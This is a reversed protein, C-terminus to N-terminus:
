RPNIFLADWNLDLRIWSVTSHLYNKALKHVAKNVRLIATDIVYGRFQPELGTTTQPTLVCNLVRNFLESQLSELLSTSTSDPSSM